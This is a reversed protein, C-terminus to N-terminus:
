SIRRGHRPHEGAVLDRLSDHDERCAPCGALHARMGPVARDADAAALQLDVYRDLQEFCEECSLEPGAPGLLADILIRRDSVPGSM